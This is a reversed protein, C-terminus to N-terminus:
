LMSLKVISKRGDDFVIELFYLGKIKDGAFIKTKYASGAIGTEVLQGKSNYLNWHKLIHKDSHLEIYNTAPNPFVTVGGTMIEDIGTNVKKKRTFKFLKNTVQQGNLMGGAIYKVTDSMNAVNRVDMPIEDYTEQAWLGSAPHYYLSRHLPPVGGSGNYAVGNYNYTVGSGGLWFVTNDSVTAGMRYGNVNADLVSFSWTIETPDDPNIVGKRLQNQIPFNTGFRAGGFYFITDDVIVGSAGFSKYTNNNPVSTGVVWTDATPNYIQVNAVNTNNSWGTIVYILSDRWVAQVQDDIPVPVSAGDSMYQNNAVNFRHVKDSSVEHGDSFVHYGGIIYIVDGVRNAAAAIKGMTDPLPPLTDWQDADVDYRFAKLHIGSYIKTSDIGAFSYIYPKGNVSGETVANNSVPEPMPAHNTIQWHQAFLSITCLLFALLLTIKNNM